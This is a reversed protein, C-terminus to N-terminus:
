SERQSPDFMRGRNILRRQSSNRVSPNKRLWMLRIRFEIRVPSFVKISCNLVQQTLIKDQFNWFSPQMRQRAAAFFLNATLVTNASLDTHPRDGNDDHKIFASGSAARVKPKARPRTCLM